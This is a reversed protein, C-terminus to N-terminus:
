MGTSCDFQNPIKHDLFYRVLKDVHNIYENAKRNTKWESLQSTCRRNQIKTTLRVRTKLRDVLVIGCHSFNAM